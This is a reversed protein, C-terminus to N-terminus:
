IMALMGLPLTCIRRHVLIWLPWSSEELYRTVIHRAFAKLQPMLTLAETQGAQGSGRLARRCGLCRSRTEANTRSLTVQAFSKAGGGAISTITFATYEGSM